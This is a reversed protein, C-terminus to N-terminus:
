KKSSLEFNHTLHSSDVSATLKTEENYEKPVIPERIPMMPTGPGSIPKSGVHKYGHIIVRKEGAYIPVKYHGQLIKGGATAGNGDLPSFDITGDEVPKGDLTVEGTAELKGNSSCGALSLFSVVVFCLIL